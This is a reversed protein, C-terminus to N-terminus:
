IGKRLALKIFVFLQHLIRSPLSYPQLSCAVRQLCFASLRFGFASLLYLEREANRM